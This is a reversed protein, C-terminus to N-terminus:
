TMQFVVFFKFVLQGVLAERVQRDVSIPPLPEWAAPTSADAAAGRLTLYYAVIAMTIAFISLHHDKWLWVGM